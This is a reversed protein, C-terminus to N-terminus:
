QFFFSLLFHLWRKSMLLDTIRRRPYASASWANWFYTYIPWRIGLTRGCGDPSQVSYSFSAVGTRPCRELEMFRVKDLGWLGLYLVWPTRLFLLLNSWSCWFEAALNCRYEAINFLEYFRSYLPKRGDTHLSIMSSGQSCATVSFLYEGLRRDKWFLAAAM